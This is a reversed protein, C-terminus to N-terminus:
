RYSKGACAPTNGSGCVPRVGRVARGRARPPIEVYLRDRDTNHGEEGRVRPYKRCARGCPRAHTSKGACAPTNGTIVDSADATAGRGRARPPIESASPGPKLAAPEEGRVRPYKWKTPATKTQGFSKGACAPTNGPVGHDRTFVGVRGRARPPIELFIGSCSRARHEEGRM